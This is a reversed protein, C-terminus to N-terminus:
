QEGWFIIVMVNETNDGRQQSFLRNYTIQSFDEFTQPIHPMRQRFKTNGYFNSTVLQFIDKLSKM